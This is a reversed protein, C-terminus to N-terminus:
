FARGCSMCHFSTGVPGGVFRKTNISFCFLCSPVSSWSGSTWITQTPIGLAEDFEKQRRARYGDVSCVYKGPDSFPCYEGTFLPEMKTKCTPCNRSM